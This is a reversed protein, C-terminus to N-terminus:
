APGRLQELAPGLACLQQLRPCQRILELHM